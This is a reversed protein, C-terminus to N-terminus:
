DNGNEKKLDDETVIIRQTVQIQVGGLWEKVLQRAKREARREVSEEIEKIREEAVMKYYLAILVMIIGCGIILLLCAILNPM